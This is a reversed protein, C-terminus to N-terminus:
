CPLLFLSTKSSRSISGLFLDADVDSTLIQTLIEGTSCRVYSHGTGVGGVSGQFQYLRTPTTALVLFSNGSGLRMYELGTVPTHSGRGLDFM